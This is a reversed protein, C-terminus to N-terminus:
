ESKGGASQENEERPLLEFLNMDLSLTVPRQPPNKVRLRFVPNKLLCQWVTVGEYCASKDAIVWEGDRLEELFLIFRGNSKARFAVVLPQSRFEGLTIEEGPALERDQLLSIINPKLAPVPCVDFLPYYM